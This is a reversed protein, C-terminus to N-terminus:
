YGIDAFGGYQWEPDQAQRAASPTVAEQSFTNPAGLMASILFLLGVKHVWGEKTGGRTQKKQFPVLKGRPNLLRLFYVEFRTQKICARCFGLLCCLLFGIALFVIASIITLEQM